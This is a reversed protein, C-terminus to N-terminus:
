IYTNKTCLKQASTGSIATTKAIMDYKQPFTFFLKQGKVVIPLLWNSLIYTSNVQSNQYSCINIITMPQLIVNSVGFGINNLWTNVTMQLKCRLIFSIEEKKSEEQLKRCLQKGEQTDLLLRGDHECDMWKPIKKGNEKLGPSIKWRNSVLVVSM